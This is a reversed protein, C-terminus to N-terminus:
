FDSSSGGGGSGGGGFGGFGGSSGGGFSSGGPGGFGGFFIPPGGRGNRRTIAYIILAFIVFQFAGGFFQFIGSILTSLLSSGENEVAQEEAVSGEGSITEIIGQVGQDVGTTFDDNRFSPTVRSELIRKSQADTVDRELGYGVEIRVKRDGESVLFLVGNDQGEKGVGWREFLEVAYEEVTVGELSEVTAVVIENTTQQEYAILEKELREETATDIIEAFDNIYGTPEPYNQAHAFSSFLLATSFFAGLIYKKIM